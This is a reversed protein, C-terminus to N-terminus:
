EHYLKWSAERCGWTCYSVASCGSCPVAVDAIKRLCHNCKDTEVKETVSSQIRIPLEDVALVQGAPIDEEAVIRRLNRGTTSLSPPKGAPQPLEEYALASSLTVAMGPVAHEQKGGGYVEVTREKPDDKAYDSIDTQVLKLKRELESTDLRVGPEGFAERAERKIEEEEEDLFEKMQDALTSQLWMNQLRAGGQQCLFRQNLLDPMKRRPLNLVMERHQLQMDVIEHLDKAPATEAQKLLLM